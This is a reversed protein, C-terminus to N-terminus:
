VARVGFSLMLISWSAAQYCAETYFCASLAFFAAYINTQIACMFEIAVDCCAVESLVAAILVGAEVATVGPHFHANAAAIVQAVIAM